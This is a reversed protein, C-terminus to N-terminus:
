PQRLTSDSHQYVERSEPSIYPLGLARFISEETENAVIKGDRFLGSGDAKLQMGVRRALACLYIKHERSGTRILLLTAWNQDTAVYLDVFLDSGPPKLRKLKEGNLVVSLRGASALAELKGDILSVTEPGGFLTQSAREITRPIAVFDIDRVQAKKRRISGAIEIRRCVGELSSRILEAQARATGLDM